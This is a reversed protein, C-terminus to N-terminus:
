SVKSLCLLLSRILGEQSRQLKTANIWFFYDIIVLKRTGAWKYLHASTDPSNILYKMLTSKGSGPKGSIWFIHDDSVMWDSFNSMYAWSYTREHAEAVQFRRLDMGGFRLSQMLSLRAVLDNSAVTTTQIRQAIAAIDAPTRAELQRLEKQRLMQQQTKENEPSQAELGLKFLKSQCELDARLIETPEIITKRLDEISPALGAQILHNTELLKDM